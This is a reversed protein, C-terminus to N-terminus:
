MAAKVGTYFVPSLFNLSTTPLFFFFALPLFAISIVTAIAVIVTYSHTPLYAPLYVTVSDPPSVPFPHV